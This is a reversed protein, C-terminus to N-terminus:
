QDEQNNYKEFIEQPTIFIDPDIDYDDDDDGNAEDAEKLADELTKKFEEGAMYVSDVVVDLRKSALESVAMSMGTRGISFTIRALIGSDSPLFAGLVQKLVADVSMFMGVRYGIKLKEVTSKKM